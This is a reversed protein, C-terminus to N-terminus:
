QKLGSFLQFITFEIFKWIWIRYFNISKILYEHLIYKSNDYQFNFEENRNSKEKFNINKILM